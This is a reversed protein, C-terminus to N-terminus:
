DLDDTGLLLPILKGVDLYFEIKKGTMNFYSNSTQTPQRCARGDASVTIRLLSGWRTTESIGRSIHVKPLITACRYTGSLSRM